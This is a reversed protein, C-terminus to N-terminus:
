GRKEYYEEKLIDFILEDVYGYKPVFTHKRLRGVLKFGNKELVRISAINPEKVRAYVKNLDLYEFAYKLMLKVAETIYGKSWYEKWNWYGIEANKSIFDINHLGVVGVLKKSSKEVIAFVVDKKENILKEYWKVEEEYYVPFYAKQLFRRMEFDGYYEWVRKIDESKLTRLYVMEGVEVIHEVM